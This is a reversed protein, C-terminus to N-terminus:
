AIGLLEYIPTCIEKNEDETMELWETVENLLEHQRKLFHSLANNDIRIQQKTSDSFRANACCLAIAKLGGLKNSPDCYFFLPLKQALKKSFSVVEPIEFLERPDSDYGYFSLEVNSKKRYSLDKSVAIREFFTIVNSIDGAEIWERIIVLHLSDTYKSIVKNVFWYEELDEMHDDVEPIIALIAEKSTHLIQSKPVSIRWSSKTKDTKSADFIEWYVNESDPDCLMIFVPLPYNILYNLHKLEGRYVYGWKTGEKFFSKGYKIQVAFAQGTVTGLSDVVEVQGDIGFDYEQPNRKFIWGLKEFVTSSVRQVGLEGKQAANSFKPGYM